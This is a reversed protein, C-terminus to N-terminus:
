CFWFLHGAPQHSDFDPQFGDEVEQSCFEISDEYQEDQQADDDTHDHDVFDVMHHSRSSHLADLFDVVVVQGDEDNQDGVIQHSHSAKVHTTSTFRFTLRSSRTHATLTHLPEDHEM